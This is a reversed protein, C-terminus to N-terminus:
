DHAWIIQSHGQKCKAITYILQAVCSYPIIQLESRHRAEGLSPASPQVREEEKGEEEELPPMTEELSPYINKIYPPPM